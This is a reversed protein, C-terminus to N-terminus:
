SFALMPNKADSTTPLKGGAFSGPVTALSSIMVAVGASQYSLGLKKVLFLSLFPFVFDGFRNIMQVLFIIYISKPLGKYSNLNIM